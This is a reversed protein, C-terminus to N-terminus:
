TGIIRIKNLFRLSLSSLKHLPRTPPPLRSTSSLSLSLSLLAAGVVIIIFIHPSCYGTFVAISVTALPFFLSLAYRRSCSSLLSLLLFFGILLKIYSRTFMDRARRAFMISLEVTWLRSGYAQMAKCAYTHRHEWRKLPLATRRRSPKPEFPSRAFSQVWECKTHIMPHHIRVHLCFLCFAMMWTACRYQTRSSCLFIRRFWQHHAAAAGAGACLARILVHFWRKKVPRRESAARAGKRNKRNLM